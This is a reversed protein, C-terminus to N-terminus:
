GASYTFAFVVDGVHGRHAEPADEALRLGAADAHRRLHRRM